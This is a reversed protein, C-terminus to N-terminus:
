YGFRSGEDRLFWLYEEQLEEETPVLVPPVDDPAPVYEITEKGYAIKKLKTVDNVLDSIIQYLQEQHKIAKDVKDFLYKIQKYTVKGEKVQEFPIVNPATKKDNKLVLNNM